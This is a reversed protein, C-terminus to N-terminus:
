MYVRICTISDIGQLVVYTSYPSIWWKKSSHWRIGNTKLAFYANKMTRSSFENKLYLVFLFQDNRTVQQKICTGTWSSWVDLNSSGLPFKTYVRICTLSEIGQLVVYMSYLDWPSSEDDKQSVGGLEMPKWPLTNKEYNQSVPRPPYGETLKFLENKLFLILFSISWKPPCWFSYKKVGVTFPWSLGPFTWGHKLFAM